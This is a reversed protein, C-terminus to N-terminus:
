VQVDVGRCTCVFGAFASLMTGEGLGAPGSLQRQVPTAGSARRRRMLIADRSIVSARVAAGGGGRRGGVEDPGLEREVGFTHM